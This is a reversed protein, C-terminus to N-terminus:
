EVETNWAEGPVDCLAYITFECEPIPVGNAIMGAARGMIQAESVQVHIIQHDIAFQNFEDICSQAVEARNKGVKQFTFLKQM